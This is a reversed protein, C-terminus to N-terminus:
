RVHLARTRFIFFLRPTNSLLFIACLPGCSLALRIRTRSVLPAVLVVLVVGAGGAVCPSKPGCVHSRPPPSQPSPQPSLPILSSPSFFQSPSSHPHAAKGGLPPRAVAIAVGVAANAAGLILLPHLSADQRPHRRLSTGSIKACRRRPFHNASRPRFLIWVVVLVSGHRLPLGGCCRPSLGQAM